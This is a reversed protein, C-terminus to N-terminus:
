KKNKWLNNPIFQFLKNEEVSVIPLVFDCNGGKKLPHSSPKKLFIRCSKRGYWLEQCFYVAEVDEWSVQEEIAVNNRFCVIGKNSVVIKKHMIRYTYRLVVCLALVVIPLAVLTEICTEKSPDDLLTWIATIVFLAGIVILAIIGVRGAEYAPWYTISNESYEAQLRKMAVAGKRLLCPILCLVTGQRGTLAIVGSEFSNSM